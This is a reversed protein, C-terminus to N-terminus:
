EKKAPRKRGLAKLRAPDCYPFAALIDEFRGEAWGKFDGHTVIYLTNNRIADMVMKAADKPDAWSPDDVREALRAEVEAYGSHARYREPRYNAVERINTKFPGPMLVSVGIDHDALEDRISETLAILGAKTTAYIAANRAAATIGSLSSVNVIHGGHGGAIMRPLFLTLGNVAGGLNVGIGFDWDDFSTQAIPGAIGVGANNVLIDVRGHRAFDADAARAFAARDSVDLAIATMKDAQGRAKFAALATAIHDKRLDAITVTMGADALAEAIALGIGSAGGTVFAHRGEFQEM